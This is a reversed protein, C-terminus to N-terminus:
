ATTKKTGGFQNIIQDPSIRKLLELRVTGESWLDGWTGDAM